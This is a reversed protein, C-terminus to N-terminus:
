TGEQVRKISFFFKSGQKPASEVWL